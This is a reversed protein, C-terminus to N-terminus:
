NGEKPGWHKVYFLKAIETSVFYLAVLGFAVILQMPEPRVFGFLERIFPIFPLVVTTIGAGITLLLVVASPRSAKWFPLMTRISFLLVLETLISGIFWMTQLVAPEGQRLFYGFFAFDFITSIVGLVVAIGTLERVDHTQPRRVEDPDVSDGAISIMPFDSLLNLLLVQIPLMPLFPIFLTSLALAYFNGFNSTLTARLYKMSNAFIKRGELIGDVIVDLSPNLLVVDSADQAIDSAGSVALGVHAMKLAPADNFGEGLFGVTQSKRLTKIIDFKQAPSTRAFVDFTRVAEEREAENMREFSGGLLVNSPDEIIGAEKGIWGAVEPADGTIIKVRVGLSEAKRIADETSSKLPDSFSIVGVFGARSEVDPTIATPGGEGFDYHAVALVRRGKKGEEAVWALADPRTGNALEEPAGRTVIIVHGNRRFLVSSKRRKPDFPLEDLLEASSAYAGAEEPASRVLADNYVSNQAGRTAKTLVAPALAYSLTEEKLGFIEAVSLRNETITGTKDTCLVQISGLDEIASLRRPVVDRRALHLAGQSMSITSVLPLAEPIVSVTLAIAFLLFEGYDISDGHVLANLLFILPITGLILKLIFASFKGIGEAFASEGDEALMRKALDGVESRDGTAYILLEADGSLLTTRAFGINRASSYEAVDDRCEVIKEVPVSEGTLVSEDVTVAEARIFRGDAPIMDGAELVVIDGPVVERVPVISEEGARRVRTKREVFSKLLELSREARYEQFFGLGANIVLFAFILAADPYERLFLAIGSAALLLYVFASKFQRLFVSVPSVSRSRSENSGYRNRSEVAQGPTIGHDSSEFKQLLEEIKM